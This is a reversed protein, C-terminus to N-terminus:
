GHRIEKREHIYNLAEIDSVWKNYQCFPKIVTNLFKGVSPASVLSTFVEMDVADYTYLGGNHFRVSLIETTEDYAVAEINSSDVKQWKLNQAM